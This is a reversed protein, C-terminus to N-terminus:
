KRFKEGIANHETMFLDYLTNRVSMYKAAMEENECEEAMLQWKYADVLLDLTQKVYMKFECIKDEM